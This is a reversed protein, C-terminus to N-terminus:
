ETPEPVDIRDEYHRAYGLVADVYALSHNYSFYATRLGPDADLGTSSTCLYNAAALTADYLNFPSTTGDDNGDAQFRSWTQPIFQMPGVARDFSADGDLAGGDSDGVVATERSGNLQIGIIRRTTDGNPQLTTGGYTGHRGEVRSIGAIAWWRVGCTPQEEAVSTSARYYADLAVLPFEVGEVTALVRAEEYNVREAAVRGAADVEDRVAAPREERLEALAARAEAADDSATKARARAEDIRGRYAAREALLVEMTLGGLVDRRELDSVAPTESVLAEYTREDDDGAVFARLALEQIAGNIADLRSSLGAIRASASARTTDLQRVRGQLVTTTQDLDHRRARVESHLADVEGYETVAHDFEPSTVPVGALEPSTTPLGPLEPSPPALVAAPAAPASAPRPAEAHATPVVIAAGSGVTMGLAAVLM